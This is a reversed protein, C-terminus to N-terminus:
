QWCGWQVIPASLQAHITSGLLSHCCGVQL